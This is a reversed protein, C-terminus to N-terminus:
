RNKLLHVVRMIKMLLILNKRVIFYKIRIKASKNVSLNVYRRFQRQLYSVFERAGSDRFIHATIIIIWSLYEDVALLYLENDRKKFFEMRYLFSEDADTLKKMNLKSNMISGSRKVYFYLKERVLSVKRINWYLPAMIYGDEYFRGKAFRVDKFVSRKYIKNWVVQNVVGGPQYFLRLIDKGTLESSGVQSNLSVESIVDGQESVEAYECVAVESDTNTIATYLKEIFREDVYDDGDIFIVYDCKSNDLGYNRADSLGGNKKNLVRVRNDIEAFKECIEKSHDTAGDNVLLLEFDKFTQSLISEICKGIFNQVNYVPVIVSVVPGKLSM